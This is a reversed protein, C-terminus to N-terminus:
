TSEGTHYPGPRRREVVGGVPAAACRRHHRAVRGRPRRDRAPRGAAASRRPRRRPHPGTGAGPGSARPSTTSGSCRACCGRWWTSPCMGPIHNAPSRSCRWAVAPPWCCRRACRHPEQRDRATRGGRGGSRGRRDVSGPHRSHHEVGLHTRGADTGAPRAQERDASVALLRRAPLPRDAGKLEGTPDGLVTAHEVLRATSESLMVGGPPAVSEMRQAMGVQEGVATYGAPGSGIEGRDGPGLETRSTATASAM